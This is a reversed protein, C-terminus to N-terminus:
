VMAMAWASMQYDPVEGATFGSILDSIEDATLEQGERKKEILTPVHM